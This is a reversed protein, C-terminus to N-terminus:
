ASGPWLWGFVGATLLGYILGDVQLGLVMRWSRGFWIAETVTAGAYTLWAVTGAIRFVELYDTGPALTRSAVYAVLLSVVITWAFWLGMQRGMGPKGAPRVILFAIPGEQVKRQYDPDKMRSRECWPVLYQGPSLGKLAARVKEEDPLAIWDRRHWPLVMWVISSAVFVFVASLLIPLWLDLLSM